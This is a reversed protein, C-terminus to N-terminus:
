IACWWELSRPPRGSVAEKAHSDKGVQAAHRNSAKSRGALEVQSMEAADHLKQLRNGFGM